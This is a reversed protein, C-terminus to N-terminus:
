QNWLRASVPKFGLQLAEQRLCLYLVPWRNTWGWEPMQTFTWPGLCKASSLVYICRTIYPLLQASCAATMMLVYSLITLHWDCVWCRKQSMIFITFLNSSLTSFGSKHLSGLFSFPWTARPYGASTPKLYQKWNLAHINRPVPLGELGQGVLKQVKQKGFCLNRHPWIRNNREAAETTPQKWRVGPWAWRKHM